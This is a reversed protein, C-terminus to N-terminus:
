EEGRLFLHARIVLVLGLVEVGMGAYAFAVRPVDQLLALACVVIAWGALLLMFGLFRMRRVGEPTDRPFRLM